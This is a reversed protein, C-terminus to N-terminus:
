DDGGEKTAENAKKRAEKLHKEAKAYEGRAAKEEAKALKERAEDIKDQKGGAAVAADIAAVTEAYAAQYTEATSGSGRDEAGGGDGAATVTTTTAPPVSKTVTKVVPPPAPPGPLPMGESDCIARLADLAAQELPTIAEAAEKDVLQLGEPGCAAALDDATSLAPIAVTTTTTTTEAVTTSVAAVVTTTTTDEAPTDTGGALAVAALASVPVLLVGAILSTPFKREKSPSPM